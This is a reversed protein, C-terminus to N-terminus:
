IGLHINSAVIKQYGTLEVKTSELKTNGFSFLFCWIGAEIKTHPLIDASTTRPVRHNSQKMQRVFDSYSSKFRPIDLSLTNPLFPLLQKGREELNIM